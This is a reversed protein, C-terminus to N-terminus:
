YMFVLVYTIALTTLFLHARYNSESKQNTQKNTKQKKPGRGRCISIGLSPTSNSSCHGAEALAVAVRSGLGMQLRCWLEHCHQIGSGCGWPYWDSEIGDLWLPFEQSLNKLPYHSVSCCFVLHILQEQEEDPWVIKSRTGWLILEFSLSLFSCPSTWLAM